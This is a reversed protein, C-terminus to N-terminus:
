RPANSSSAPSSVGHPRTTGTGVTEEASDRPVRVARNAGSARELNGFLAGVIYTPRAKVEAYIRGVYEGVVGLFFLIVGAFFTLLYVLATFGQPAQHSVFKVYLSYVGFLIAVAMALAGLLSAVRLPLTSFAFIGDSALKLLKLLSYKSAGARREDREVPIGIQRYGVWSRLGRLYRQHEPLRRLELVVRRSMLGFDGADLPLRTDSLMGQLRYFASYCLRLSWSEKRTARTAYVVDYGESFKQLFDFIHEPADQLDGDMLVVVDGSVFDLAATLASQHGFNRSLSVVGFRSNAAAAEVLMALTRDSSGDDVLILEHPGGPVHDLVSNVRALLEPLVEQENHLAIAISVRPTDSM